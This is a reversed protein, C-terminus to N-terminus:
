HGANWQYSLDPCCQCGPLFAYFQITINKGSIVFLASDVGVPSDGYLAEKAEDATEKAEKALGMAEAFTKRTNLRRELDAVTRAGQRDQKSM